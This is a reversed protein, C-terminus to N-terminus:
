ARCYNPVSWIGLRILVEGMSNSFVDVGVISDCVKDEILSLLTTMTGILLSKNYFVEASDSNHFTWPVSGLSLSFTGGEVGTCFQALEVVWRLMGRRSDDVVDLDTLSAHSFPLAAVIVAYRLAM